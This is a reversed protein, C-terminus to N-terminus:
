RQPWDFREIFGALDEKVLVLKFKNVIKQYEDPSYHRESLGLSVDAFPAKEKEVEFTTIINSGKKVFAAFAVTYRSTKEDSWGLPGRGFGIDTYGDRLMETFVTKEVGYFSCMTDVAGDCFQTKEKAQLEPARHIPGRPAEKKM